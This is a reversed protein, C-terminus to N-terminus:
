VTMAAVIEEIKLEEVNVEGANQTPAEISSPEISKEKPHEECVSKRTSPGITQEQEENVSRLNLLPQIISGITFPWFMPTIALNVLFDPISNNFIGWLFYSKKKYVLVLGIVRVTLALFVILMGLWMKYITRTKREADPDVKEVYVQTVGYEDVYEIENKKAMRKNNNHMVLMVHFCVIVGVSCILGLALPYNVTVNNRYADRYFRKGYVPGLLFAVAGIISSGVSMLNVIIMYTLLVIRATNKFQESNDIWVLQYKNNKDKEIWPFSIKFWIM